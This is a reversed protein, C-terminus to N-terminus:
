HRSQASHTTLPLLMFDITTQKWEVNLYGLGRFKYDIFSKIKM